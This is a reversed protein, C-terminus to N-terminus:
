RPFLEIDTNDINFCGELPFGLVKLIVVTVVDSEWGGLCSRGSTLDTVNKVGRFMYSFARRMGGSEQQGCPPPSIWLVVYRM